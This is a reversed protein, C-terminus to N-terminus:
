INEQRVQENIKDTIKDQENQKGGKKINYWKRRRDLRAPYYEKIIWDAIIMSLYYSVDYHKRIYAGLPNRGAHMMYLPVPDNFSISHKLREAKTNM